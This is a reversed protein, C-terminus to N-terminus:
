QAAVEPLRSGVRSGRSWADSGSTRLARPRHHELPALQNNWIWWVISSPVSM